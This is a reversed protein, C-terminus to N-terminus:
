DKRTIDQSPEFYIYAICIFMPFHRKMKSKIKNKLKTERVYSKFFVNTNTKLKM